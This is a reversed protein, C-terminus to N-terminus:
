VKDWGTCSYSNQRGLFIRIHYKSVHTEFFDATSFCYCKTPMKARKSIFNWSNLKNWCRCERVLMNSTFAIKKRRNEHLIWICLLCQDLDSYNIDFENCSVVVASTANLIHVLRDKLHHITCLSLIEVAFIYSSDCLILTSLGCARVHRMSHSTLGFASCATSEMVWTCHFDYFKVGSMQEAYVWHLLGLSITSFAIKGWISCVKGYKHYFRM